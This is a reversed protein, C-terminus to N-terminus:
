NAAGGRGPPADVQWVNRLQAEILQLLQRPSFPKALVADAGLRDALDLIDLYRNRGGGSIAIIKLDPCTTRLRRIADLGDLKPMVLDILAVDPQREVALRVAEAGDAAEIVDAAAGLMDVLTRRLLPDDDAILILAM